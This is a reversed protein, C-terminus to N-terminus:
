DCWELVVVKIEQGSDVMRDIFAKAAFLRTFRYGQVEFRHADKVIRYGRYTYEKM